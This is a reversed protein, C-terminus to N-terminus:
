IPIKKRNKNKNMTFAELKKFVIIKKLLLFPFNTKGFFFILIFEIFLDNETRTKELFYNFSVIFILNNLTKQKNTQKAAIPHYLIGQVFLVQSYLAFSFLHFFSFGKM